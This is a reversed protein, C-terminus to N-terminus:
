DVNWEYFYKVQNPALIELIPPIVPDPDVGGSRAKSITEDAKMRVFGKLTSASMYLDVRLNRYGFINESSVIFFLFTLWSFHIPEIIIKNM